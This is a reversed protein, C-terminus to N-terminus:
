RVRVAKSAFAVRVTYRGPKSLRVSWRAGTTVSRIVKGKRVIQWRLTGVAGRVTYAVRKGAKVRAPGKIAARTVTYGCTASAANGARDAANLVVNYTGPRTTAVPGAVATADVGSGSDAVLAEVRGPQNIAFTAPQCTLVPPTTDPLLVTYGCTASATNGVQDQGTLTVSFTGPVGTQVAASVTASAPGSGSDSVDATVTGPEGVTFTAPRCTVTPAVTDPAPKVTYGCGVTTSNGAVDKGTLSVTFTGAATTSVASSVTATSPGSHQDTIDAVVAGTAFQEFTAPRCVVTPATTDVKVALTNSSGFGAGTNNEADKATCTITSAGQRTSTVTATAPTVAPGTFGSVTGNTCGISTVTRHDTATVKTVVPVKFWGSAPVHPASIKVVPATNDCDAAGAATLAALADVLGAGAGDTPTTGVARAGTRLHTVVQSATLCQERDLILAAVAAAHPAAASTGYFRHVGGELGGFFSNQTGDTATVDITATQCPNVGAAPQTGVVPGWCYTAPGWSSYEELANPTDHRVAAVTVGPRSANHGFTTPGVVDGLASTSYDVGTLEGGWRLLKLRPVGSGAVRVVVLHADMGSFDGGSAAYEFAMESLANDEDGCALVDQFDNEICLDLDTTVGYQPLNWSLLYAIASKYSFGYTTDVGVTPDFDHCDVTTGKYRQVIEAPCTNPKYLISEYSGISKGGVVYNANAASSFYVVGDATVDAVAKAIVGDQYMPEDAWTVDDVIIDAGAAALDRINQAFSSTSYFASAYLITAGPAVDHVIQAMARGEDTADAAPGEQLNDVATTDGCPNGVGPLEGGTVDASAGGLRNYSDSMIGVTVDRGTVAYTARALDARLRTVGESVFAGSPCAANTHPTLVERAYVVAPVQALAPLDAPKVAVTVLRQDRDVFKIRSGSDVLHALVADSPRTVRVDVILRESPTTMLEAPVADTQAVTQLTPSLTQAHSGDDALAPGAGMGGAAALAALLAATAWRMAIVGAEVTRRVRGGHPM